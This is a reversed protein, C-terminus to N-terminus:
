IYILISFETMTDKRDEAGFHRQHELEKDSKKNEMRMAMKM